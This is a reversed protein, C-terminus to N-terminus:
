WKDVEESASNNEQPIETVRTEVKVEEVPAPAPAPASAAPM